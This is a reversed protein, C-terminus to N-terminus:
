LLPLHSPGSVFTVDDGSDEDPSANASRYPIKADSDSSIASPSALPDEPSVSGPAKKKAPLVPETQMSVTSPEAAMDFHVISLQKVHEEENEDKHEDKNEELTGNEPIEEVFSSILPEVVINEAGDPDESSPSAQSILAESSAKLPLPDSCSPLHSAPVSRCRSPSSAMGLTASEVPSSDEVCADDLHTASTTM